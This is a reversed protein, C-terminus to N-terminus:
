PPVWILLETVYVSRCKSSRRTTKFDFSIWRTLGDPYVRSGANSVFSSMCKFDSQLGSPLRRLNCCSNAACNAVTNVEAIALIVIQRQIQGPVGPNEARHCRIPLPKFVMQQMKAYDAKWEEIREPKPVIQLSGRKFDEYKVWTYNFFVTRHDVVSEFLGENSVAKDAVGADILKFVDFYHRSMRAKLPKGPPRFNEEHLLAAKKGSRGNRRWFRCM